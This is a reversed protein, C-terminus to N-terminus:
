RKLGIRIIGLLWILARMWLAELSSIGGTHPTTDLVFDVEAYAGLHEAHESFGRVDVRTPDIGRRGLDRRFREATAARGYGNDKVLLRSGPVRRLVDAWLALTPLTCKEPRSFSGFTFPAGPDRIAPGPAYGPGMYPVISPLRMDRYLRSILSERVFGMGGWYQLCGDTVQRVLRGAKLKAM